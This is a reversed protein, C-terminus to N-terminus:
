AAMQGLVTGADYYVGLSNVMAVDGSIEPEQAANAVISGGVSIGFMGVREPHITPLSQLYQFASAAILHEDADLRYEVMPESVPILVAIGNRAFARSIRDLHPDAHEPGLGIYMVIGGYCGGESPHYLYAGEHRDDYPFQVLTRTPEDSFWRAPYAPSDPFVESLFAASHLGIRVHTSSMLFIFVLVVGGILM